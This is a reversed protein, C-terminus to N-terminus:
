PTTGGWRVCWGMALSMVLILRELRDAHELQSDELEFGRGKFDSFMPEISWRAAYDLVAARTPACDMAIIWPEPHGPEHLIGLHTMVGCAFLRVGPLYREAVDQALDGTTTEEGEGTDALVNRKLRLRYGWGQAGLWGFLAASPYFRDASLMVNAGLPLWALVRELVRRQGEFGINASGEEALWALPLARDGVRVSVMLVAMREGLDTQDMSLLITQGNRAAKALEARAFPEMVVATELLPNKLLRRLWQERMDQRDTSLPLLNALEVTNPTRGEIMAGVVLALKRVM